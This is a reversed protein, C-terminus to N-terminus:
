ACVRGNGYHQYGNVLIEKSRLFIHLGLQLFCLKINYYYYRRKLNMQIAKIDYASTSKGRVSMIDCMIYQLDNQTNKCRYKLVKM